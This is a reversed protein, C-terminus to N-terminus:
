TEYPKTTLTSTCSAIYKRVRCITWPLRISLRGGGETEHERKWADLDHGNRESMAVGGANRATSGRMWCQSRRTRAHLKARERMRADPRRSAGRSLPARSSTRHRTGGACLTSCARCCAWLSWPQQTRHSLM